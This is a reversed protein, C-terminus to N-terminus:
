EGARTQQIAGLQGRPFGAIALAKNVVLHNEVVRIM